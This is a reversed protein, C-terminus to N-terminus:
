ATASATHRAAYHAVVAEGVRRALLVPVANGVQRSTSRLGGLLEFDRPFTQLCAAERVSIARDQTPHGFRGNTLGTCKTTLVPAQGDRHLRGYTDQHGDHGRHCDLWLEDPWSERGGGEPTAKLRRLNLEGLGGCRHNPVTRDTQGAELRPLDAIWEGVTSFAQLGPGHTPCPVGLSGHRSAILVLRRRRQPVGYRRCDVVEWTVGYGRARLAGVFRGLSRHRSEEQLGPVNEVLVYDPAVRDIIPVLTLLLTKGRSRQGSGRVRSFPQCPACAALVVPGHDDVCGALRDLDVRRVDQEFFEAEPFNHRYTAAAEPDNDIGARIQMGARLGVSTGGCGCFVDLVQPRPLGIM